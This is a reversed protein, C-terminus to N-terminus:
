LIFFWPLGLCVLAFWPLGSVRCGGDGEGERVDGEGEGLGPHTRIGVLDPSIAM